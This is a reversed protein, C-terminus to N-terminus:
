LMLIDRGGEVELAAIQCCVTVSAARWPRNLGIASTLRRDGLAVLSGVFWDLFLGSNRDDCYGPLLAFM